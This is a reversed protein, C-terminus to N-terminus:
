LKYKSIKERINTAKIVLAEQTTFTGDSDFLIDLEQHVALEEPTL